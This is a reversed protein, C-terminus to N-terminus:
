FTPEYSVFEPSSEEEDLIEVRLFNRKLNRRPQWDCLQRANGGRHNALMVAVALGFVCVSRRM